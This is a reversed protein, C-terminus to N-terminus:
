NKPGPALLRGILEVTANTVTQLAHPALKRGIDVEYGGRRIAALTPLYGCDGANSEHGVLVYKARSKLKVELQAEVFPEGPWGVAVADGIRIAQIEYAYDPNRQIIRMKDLDRIALVWDWAIREHANDLYVPAPHEKLLKAAKALVARAPRKWPIKIVCRGVRLPLADAPQLNRVLKEGTQTLNKLMCELSSAPNFDPNAHDSPSINGCAGNLCGIVCKGGIIGAVAESWLGPWDASIYRRPYGHIPHCTHHLLGALPRAGPGEFLLLSAESDVAGEACLINEDCQRPHMRSTGDRMIFRRNFACRRDIARAIKMKAPALRRMAAEAGALVQRYFYDNYAPSDGRVWRLAGTLHRGYDNLFAGVRPASHCQSCHIMVAGPRAGIRRAIQRRLVLAIDLNICDLDCAMICAVQQGSRLIIIRAFLRDRIEEVPRYRGIDGGIQVGMGPTIDVKVAGAQLMHNVM